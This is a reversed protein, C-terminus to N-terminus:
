RNWSKGLRSTRLQFVRPFCIPTPHTCFSIPLSWNWHRSLSSYINLLPASRTYKNSSPRHSNNTLRSEINGTIVQVKQGDRSIMPFVLSIDLYVNSFVTALYGAERVYPYNAHLLVFQVNPYKRILKDLYRGCILKLQCTRHKLPTKRQTPNASILIQMELAQISKYRNQRQLCRLGLVRRRFWPM